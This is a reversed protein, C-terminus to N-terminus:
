LTRLLYRVSKGRDPLHARGIEEFGMHAHFADSAPNPPDYNVECCIRTHGAKRAADFFNEYLRRALGTGRASEAVVVRDVYAFRDYHQEFWHYNPSAYDAGQELGILLADVDGAIRVHFALGILRELANREIRGVEVHNANSLALMAEIDSAAPRRLANSDMTM